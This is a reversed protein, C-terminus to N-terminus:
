SNLLRVEYWRKGDSDISDDMKILSANPYVQQLYEVEVISLRLERTFVGDPFSEALFLSFYDVNLKIM